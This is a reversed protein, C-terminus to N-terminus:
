KRIRVMFEYCYKVNCILFDIGIPPNLKKIFRNLKRKTLNKITFTDTINSEPNVLDFITSVWSNIKPDYLLTVDLASIRWIGKDRFPFRDGRIFSYRKGCEIKSPPSDLYQIDKYQEKLRAQIFPLPCNKYLWRDFAEPTNWVPAEGEYPENYLFLYDKPSGKSGDHYTLETRECWDKLIVYDSYKLYTKDIAAM